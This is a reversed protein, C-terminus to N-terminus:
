SRDKTQIIIVYGDTLSLKIPGTLFENSTYIKREFFNAENLPYKANELQLIGSGEALFSVYDFNAEPYLEHQGALRYTVQNLDDVLCIQHAYASLEPHSPLFINTLAHDLRGGLAGFITVEAKPFAQFIKILALETDTDDKHRPATILHGASAEIRAFEESSVSDFDGIAWDLALGQELLFLSGRDVGVFVDFQRTFYSLDGGAFLAVKTM